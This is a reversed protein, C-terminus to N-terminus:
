AFGSSNGAQSSSRFHGRGESEDFHYVTCNTARPWACKLFYSMIDAPHVLRAILRWMKSQKTFSTIRWKANAYKNNERGLLLV